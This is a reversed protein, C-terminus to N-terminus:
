RARYIAVTGDAWLPASADFTPPPSEGRAFIGVAFSTDAPAPPPDTVWGTDLPGFVQRGERALAHAVLARDLLADPTGATGSVYVRAGEPAAAFLPAFRERAPAVRYVLANALFTALNVNPELTVLREPMERWAADTYGTRDLVVWDVGLLQLAAVSEPAPFTALRELLAHQLPPRVEMEGNVFRDRGTTALAMGVAARPNPLMLVVGPPQAALWASVPTFAPDLQPVATTAVPRTSYEGLLATLLALAAAYTVARPLRRRRMAVALRKWGVAALLAVGLMALPAFRLPARLADVGPVFRYLLDYPLPIVGIGIRRLNLVPGLSLILGSAAITLAVGRFHLRHRGILAVACLALAVLGPFLFVENPWTMGYRRSFAGYILNDPTAAIWMRPKASWQEVAARSRAFGEGSAVRWFPLAIALMGAGAVTLGVAARGVGRWALNRRARPALLAYGLYACILFASAYAYYGATIGQLFTLGGLLAADRWGGGRVTRHLFLLVLPLWQVAFLGAHDLHALHYPALAVIVGAIVGAIRSRLLQWIAWYPTFGSLALTVLLTLNHALLANRTLLYVPGAFLTQGLTLEDRVFAARTPYLVNADLFSGQRDLLWQVPWVLRWATILPDGTSTVRDALQWTLPRLWWAALLAFFAFVAIHQMAHILRARTHHPTAASVALPRPLVVHPRWGVAGRDMVQKAM